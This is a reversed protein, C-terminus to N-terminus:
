ADNTNCWKISSFIAMIDDTGIKSVRCFMSNKAPSRLYDWQYWVASPTSESSERGLLFAILIQVVFQSIFQPIYNSIDAAAMCENISWSDIKRHHNAKCNCLSWPLSLLILCLQVCSANILNVVLMIAFRLLPWINSNSFQDWPSLGAIQGQFGFRHLSSGVKYCVPTSNQSSPNIRCMTSCGPIGHM